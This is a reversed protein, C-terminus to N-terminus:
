EAASGVVGSNDHPYMPLIFEKEIADMVILYADDEYIGYTELLQIINVLKFSEVGDTKNVVDEIHRLKKPLRKEGIQYTRLLSGDVIDDFLWEFTKTTKVDAVQVPQESLADDFMMGIARAYSKMLEEQDRSASTLTIFACILHQTPVARIIDSIPIVVYDDKKGIEDFESRFHMIATIFASLLGEELGGKLIRSYIPLGSLRHLVIIGLLNNADDFRAKIDRALAHKKRRKRSSIKQGAVVAVLVGAFMVIQLSYDMITRFLRANADFTPVLAESFDQIMEHNEKEVHIVVDYTVEGALPMVISASYVGPTIEDMIKTALVVGQSEISLSVNADSVPHGTDAELVEVEIVLPLSEPGGFSTLPNVEMPVRNVLFSLVHTQNEYGEKSFTIRISYDRLGLPILSLNYHGAGTNTITAWESGEETIEVSAGDVASGNYSISYVYDFSYQRGYILPELPGTPADLSTLFQSKITIVLPTTEFYPAASAISINFNGAGVLATDFDAQWWNKVINPEFEVTGAAWTGVVEAGDGMLFLGNETDHFRLVVTIPQGVVTDLDSSFVLELAAQHHLAFGACSYALESGNSWHYFTSWPGATTNVPGFIVPSSEATGTAGSITSSEYWASCNPMAWTFDVADSLVPIDDNSSLSIRIRAIDNSHFITENVWNMTGTDYREVIADSAYNPSQCRINWWGLRDLLTTPIEVHDSELTCDSTVDALFPDRITFNQWDVPHYVRLVLEDYTGIFGLYTFTELSASEDSHVTYAVGEQMPDMAPRSNLFRHNLLRVSYDFCISTNALMRINLPSTSWYSDNLLIGSGSDSSGTVPAIVGNVEFHLDVNECSPSAACVLSVDDLCVTIYQTESVGDAFGDGDYDLDADVLFTSDIVLGIMFESTAIPATINIPIRESAFWVGKDDLTPLDISHVPNGDIFVKLSFSGALTSNLPGQLVLYRYCLFFQAIYESNEFTQNWLVTTGAYHTYQHLGVNTLRAKNQVTVYPDISGEYSVQQVQLQEPNPDTNTSIADWGFPYNLLTGNPNITYGPYGDDFTGNVVYFRELNWVDAEVQSGIWDHATDIVMSQQTNASTDTRASINGTSSYGRQEIAAPDLVGQVPAPTSNVDSTSCADYPVNTSELLHSGSEDVQENSSVGFPLLGSTSEVSGLLSPMSQSSFFVVILSIAVARLYLTRQMM